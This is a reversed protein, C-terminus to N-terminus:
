AEVGWKLAIGEYFRAGDTGRHTVLGPVAARLDRGFSQVTGVSDRGNRSCWGRWSRFLVEVQERAGARVQCTERVFATVPSALEEMEQFAEQGSLPQVFRGREMLRRRGALAWNLIGPREALLRNTLGPDERGYFSNTLRLVVFRGPLAASADKLRPVENTLIVFRTPLRVTVSTKHKRDVTIDDEGSISLLREVVIAANEGSFRADSIIALTKGLLPQLGFAGALSSTTPGCANGEGILRRMVRGITGKGSRKPGVILLMKQQSTDAMLLYGMFEQLCEMAELDDGFVQEMFRVWQEPPEPDSQYDFDLACPTYLRPTAPYILGTPVHLNKSRCPLIENAPPMGDPADGLWCPSPTSAPLYTNAKISDRASAITQSNCQFPELVWGRKPKNVPRLARHLWPQLQGNLAGDEIAAYRNESWVLLEDAVAHIARVGNVTHFQSVFCQATPLTRTPSLVLRGSDPDAVGLTFPGERNDDSASTPLMTNPPEREDSGGFPGLRGGWGNAAAGRQGGGSGRGAPVRYVESCEHVAKAITRERYDAREWKERCLGSRRFLRDIRAADPGCWFALMSCLALDAVSHDDGHDATNGSWLRAFKAGNGAALARRILEDDDPLAAEVPAKMARPPRDGGWLREMLADLAAQRPEVSSPTGELHRGTVTFYRKQDYIEIKGVGAIKTSTCKAQSGKNALIFIKVGTGSPSIEAYSGLSEIIERAAANPVGNEICDDLDIGTVGDSELFVFGVGACAAAGAEFLADKCTMWSSPSTPDVARGSAPDVPVKTEKGSRVAYNWVVWRDRARLQEPVAGPGSPMLSPLAGNLSTISAHGIM